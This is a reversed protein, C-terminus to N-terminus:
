IKPIIVCCGCQVTGTGPVCLSGGISLPYKKSCRAACQECGGGLIVTDETCAPAQAEATLLWRLFFGLLSAASIKAM